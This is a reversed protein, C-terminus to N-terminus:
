MPPTSRRRRKSARIPEDLAEADWADGTEGADRTYVPTSKEEDEGRQNGDTKEDDNLLSLSHNTPQNTTGIRARADRLPSGFLCKSKLDFADRLLLRSRSQPAATPARHHPIFPCAHLYIDSADHTILRGPPISDTRRIPRRNIPIPVLARKRFLGNM